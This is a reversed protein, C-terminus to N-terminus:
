GRRGLRRELSRWLWRLHVLRPWRWRLRRREVVHVRGLVQEFTVCGDKVSLSDGAFHVGQESVGQVRHVVIQGRREFAAIQGVALERGACPTLEVLSGGPIAPWMSQGRARFRVSQGARALEVIMRFPWTM